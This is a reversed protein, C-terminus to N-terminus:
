RFPNVSVSEGVNIYDNPIKSFNPDFYRFEGNNTLGLNGMHLDTNSFVIHFLIEEVLRELWNSKLEIESVQNVYSIVEKTDSNMLENTITKALSKVYKAVMDINKKEEIHKRLTFLVDKHKIAANKIAVLLQKFLDVNIVDLIPHM